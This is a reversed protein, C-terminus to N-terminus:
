RAETGMFEVVPEGDLRAIEFRSLERWVPFVIEARHAGAGVVLHLLRDPNICAGIERQELIFQQVAALVAEHIEGQRNANRSLINYQIHISYGVEDPPGVELFDGMTHRAPDYLYAELEELFAGSPVSLDEMLLMIRVHGAPVGTPVGKEDNPGVARVPGINSRFARVFYEYALVSGATNHRTWEFLYDLKLRIDSQADDGGDTEDMNAVSQIYPPRDIFEHIEGPPIGNSRAGAELAVGRVDTFSEGPHVEAYQETAFVINDETRVRTGAPVAIPRSFIGSATFRLKCAAFKPEQRFVMKNAALNELGEGFSFKVFQLKLAREAQMDAQFDEAADKRLLLMVPSGPQLAEGAEREYAAVYRALRQEFSEEVITFEPVAALLSNVYEETWTM